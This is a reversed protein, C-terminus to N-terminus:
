MCFRMSFMSNSSMMPAAHFNGVEPRSGGRPAAGAPLSWAAGEVYGLADELEPVRSAVEVDDRRPLGLSLLGMFLVDDEVDLALAIALVAEVTALRWGYHMRFPRVTGQHDSGTEPEASGAPELDARLLPYLARAAEMRGTVSGGGGELPDARTIRPGHDTPETRITTANSATRPPGQRRHQRPRVAPWLTTTRCPAGPSTHHRPCTALPDHRGTSGPGCGAPASGTGAEPNNQQARVPLEPLPGHPLCTGVM